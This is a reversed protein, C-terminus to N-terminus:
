IDYTISSSETWTGENKKRGCNNCRLYKKTNKVINNMM